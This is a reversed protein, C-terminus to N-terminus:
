TASTTPSAASRRHALRRGAPRGDGPRRRDDGGLRPRRRRADRAGGDAPGDRARRRDPRGEDIGHASGGFANDFFHSPSMMRFGADAVVEVNAPDGDLAHAGEIALLGATLARDLAARRRTPPWTAARGSSGSRPWRLPGGPRRGPCGPPAGAAAAAAVDGAALRARARAARRRRQPRRQARHQPAAAIEDHRRPGPARRQGRRLRPVDVHGRTSRQLLDRGWLLSDAHLDAVWLTEHLARARDSAHYPPPSGPRACDRRPGGSWPAGSSGRASRPPPRRRAPSGSRWRGRARRDGAAPRASRPAPRSRARSFDGTAVFGYREYFPQPSGPGQGASTWLVDAGPRGALYAVVADLTATGYGKRQEHQDILLRWLYYPGLLDDDAALREAPDRRQDDRLGRGARRGDRVVDAPVSPCRRDCGPVVTEVSRRVRGPGPRCQAGARCARDAETVIDRLEIAAM